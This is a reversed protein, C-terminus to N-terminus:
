LGELNCWRRHSYGFSVKSYLIAEFILSSLVIVQLENESSESVEELVIQKQDGSMVEFLITLYM